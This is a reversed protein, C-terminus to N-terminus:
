ATEEAVRRARIGAVIHKPNPVRVFLPSLFARVQRFTKRIRRDLRVLPNVEFYGRMWSAIVMSIARLFADFLLSAGTLALVKACLMLVHPM